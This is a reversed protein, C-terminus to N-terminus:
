LFTHDLKLIDDVLYWAGSDQRMGHGRPRDATKFVCGDRALIMTLLRMHDEWLEREVDTKPETRTLPKASMTGSPDWFCWNKHDWIALGSDARQLRQHSGWNFAHEGGPRNPKEPVTPNLTRQCWYTDVPYKDGLDLKGRFAKDCYSRDVFDKHTGAQGEGHHHKGQPDYEGKISEHAPDDRLLPRAMRGNTSQAATAAAIRLGPGFIQRARQMVM